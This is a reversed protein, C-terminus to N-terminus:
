EEEAASVTTEVPIQRPALEPRRPVQITLTGADFKAQAGGLDFNRGVNVQRRFRLAGRERRLERYGEPAEASREGSLTLLTGHAEVEVDSAKLGPVDLRLSLGGEEERVELRPAFGLGAPFPFAFAPNALSRRIDDIRAFPPVSGRPEYLSIM